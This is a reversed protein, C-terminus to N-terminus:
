KKREALIARKEDNINQLNHDGPQAKVRGHAIQRSRMIRGRVEMMPDETALIAANEEFEAETVDVEELPGGCVEVPYMANRGARDPTPGDKASPGVYTNLLAESVPRPGLGVGIGDVGWKEMYDAPFLLGTRTCKFAKM